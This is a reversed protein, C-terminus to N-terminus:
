SNWVKSTRERRLSSKICLTNPFTVLDCSKFLMRMGAKLSQLQRVICPFRLRRLLSISHLRTDHGKSQQQRFSRNDEQESRFERHLHSPSDMNTQKPNSVM